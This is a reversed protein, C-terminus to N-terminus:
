RTPRFRRASRRWLRRMVNRPTRDEIEVDPWPTRRRHEFYLERGDWECMYNWPKNLSPGEFHRIGPHRRAEEVVEAGFVEVGWPWHIVANMCNWRPHLPLRREGLVVNLADQDPWKLDAARERAFGALTSACGDARMAELNMLLVGSNFYAEPGALGLAAPRHLEGPMFVNTVAGLYDDALDTAWLPELADAVITDVDLYLVRKAEPLLDPLFIRFWMSSGIYQWAPMGAVWEGPIRHITLAGGGTEVMGALRDAVDAPFDEGCLYHLHLPREGRHALASHIMAASHPVYREDSACALHIASM